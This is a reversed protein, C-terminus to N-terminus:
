SLQRRPRLAWRLMMVLLLHDVIIRPRGIMISRQTFGVMVPLILLARARPRFIRFLLPIMLTSHRIAFRGATPPVVTSLITHVRVIRTPLATESSGM